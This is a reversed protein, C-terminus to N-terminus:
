LELDRLMLAHMADPDEISDQVAKEFALLDLFDGCQTDYCPVIEVAETNSARRDSEAAIEIAEAATHAVHSWSLTEGNSTVHFHSPIERYQMTM